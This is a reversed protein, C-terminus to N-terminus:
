FRYDWTIQPMSKTYDNGGDAHTELRQFSCGLLTHPTPAFNIGVSFGYTTGSLRYAYADPGFTPDEALARSAAFIKAGIQSTSVVDGHRASLGVDLFTRENLSYEANAAVNHSDQTFVDGSIGPVEEALAAAARHEFAYEAWLSWREDIRRGSALTARYISANRYHDDFESRGASVGVRAWPAFAGLGWKRKLAIAAGLSADNLGHFRNFSEGSLDGSISLGYNEAIPFLQFLSLRAGVVTDEVIDTSNEANGVNDDHRLYAETGLTWDSHAANPIAGLAVSIVLATLTAASPQGREWAHGALADRQV